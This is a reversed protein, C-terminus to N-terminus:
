VFGMIFFGISIISIDAIAHILWSNTITNNRTNVLNFIMGISFLGILSIIIIFPSFWNKFISMHYISFLFSSYLYAFKTNTYNKLSLFLFGRFFFEEIFSNCLIIYIGIFIFNNKSIQIMNLKTAINDFDIYNKFIFFGIIIIVFVISGFFFGGLFDKKSFIKKIKFTKLKFIKNLYIPIGIFFCIKSITKILYNINLVQELIFLIICTIISIILILFGTKTM